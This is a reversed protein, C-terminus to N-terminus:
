ELMNLVLWVHTLVYVLNFIQIFIIVRNNYCLYRNSLRVAASLVDWNVSVCMQCVAFAQTDFSGLEHMNRPLVIHKFICERM